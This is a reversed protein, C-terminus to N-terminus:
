SRAGTDGDLADLAQQAAADAPFMLEIHLDAVAIDEASRFQAITSFLSLRLDRARYITPVVPPLPEELKWAAVVPDAALRAAAADLEAIGGAHLSEARLRVMAHHGVEGWNEVVGPGWGPKAMADLLSDAPGLGALGFLRHASRNLDRLRWLGDLIVGPYPEHRDLLRSMAALVPQLGDSDPPEAAYVPAFGSAALLGNRATRPVALVESLHLVMDRSPRSRGTELFSIHRASVSADCALQLQSLGRTERWSKLMEGFRNM